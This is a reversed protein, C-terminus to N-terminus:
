ADTGEDEDSSSQEDDVNPSEDEDRFEVTELMDEFRSREATTMGTPNTSTAIFQVLLPTDNEDKALLLIQDQHVLTGQQRRSFQLRRANRGGVSFEHLHKTFDPDASASLQEQVQQALSELDDGEKVQARGLVVTFGPKLPNDSLVHWTADHMGDPRVFSLENVHFRSPPLLEIEEEPEAVEAEELAKAAAKAAEEEHLLDYISPGSM